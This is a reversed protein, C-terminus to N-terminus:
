KQEPKEGIPIFCICEVAAIIIACFIGSLATVSGAEILGIVSFLAIACAIACIIKLTFLTKRVTPNALTKAVYATLERRRTNALYARRIDDSTRYTHSRYSNMNLDANMNAEKNWFSFNIQSNNTTNELKVESNPKQSQM